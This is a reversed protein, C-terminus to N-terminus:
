LCGRMGDSGGEPYLITDEVRKEDPVCVLIRAPCLSYRTSNLSNTTLFDSPDGVCRETPM